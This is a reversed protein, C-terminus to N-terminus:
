FFYKEIDKMNKETYRHIYKYLENKNEINRMDTIVKADFYNSEYTPSYYAKLLEEYNRNKIKDEIQILIQKWSKSHKSHLPKRFFLQEAEEQNIQKIFSEVENKYSILKIYSYSDLKPLIENQYKRHQIERYPVKGNRQKKEFRNEKTDLLEKGTKVIRDLGDIAIKPNKKIYDGVKPAATKAVKTISKFPIKPM